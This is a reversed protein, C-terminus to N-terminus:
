REIAPGAAVERPEEPTVASTRGRKMLHGALVTGIMLVGLVVTQTPGPVNALGMGNNLTGLLTLALLVGLVSGSGGYIDVGGLVVATILFLLMQSGDDARASGYQGVFFVAGVACMFGGLGFVGVKVRDVRIASFEAVTPSAGVTYLWRGVISRHVLVAFLAAAVLLVGLSLPFPGISSSGALLYTQDFGVYGAQGGIVYAIGRYAGATGLTVALSPLAFRAVIVGNLTGLMPGVVLVLPVSAILPIQAASLLGLSVTCVALISPQSLDIEGVLVITMLGLSLLGPVAVFRMGGLIQDLRLYYPSLQAAALIACINIVLLGIAWSRPLRGPWPFSWRM